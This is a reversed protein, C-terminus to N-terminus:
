ERKHKSKIMNYTIYSGLIAVCLMLIEKKKKSTISKEVQKKQIKEAPNQVHITSKKISKTM